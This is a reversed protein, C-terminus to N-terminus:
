MEYHASALTTVQLCVILWRNALLELLTVNADISSIILKYRFVQIGCSHGHLHTILDCTLKHNIEIHLKTFFSFLNLTYLSINLSISLVIGGNSYALFITEILCIVRHSRLAPIVLSYITARTLLVVTDSLIRMFDPFWVNMVTIPSGASFPNHGFRVYKLPFCRATYKLTPHIINVEIVIDTLIDNSLAIFRCPDLLRPYYLFVCRGPIGNDVHYPM